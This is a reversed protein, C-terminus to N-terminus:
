FEPINRFCRKSHFKKKCFCIRLPARCFLKFLEKQGLLKKSFDLFPGPTYKFLVRGQFNQQWIHLFKQPLQKKLVRISPHKQYNLYRKELFGTSVHPHALLFDYRFLYKYCLPVSAM